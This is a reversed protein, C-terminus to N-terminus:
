KQCHTINEFINLTEKFFSEYIHIKNIYKFAKPGFELKSGLQVLIDSIVGGFNKDKGLTLGWNGGVLISSFRIFGFDFMVM